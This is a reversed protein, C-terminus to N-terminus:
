EDEIEEYTRKLNNWLEWGKSVCLYLVGIALLTMTTENM